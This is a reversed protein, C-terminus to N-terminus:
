RKVDLEVIDDHERPVDRQTDQLTDNLDLEGPGSPEVVFPTRGDFRASPSYM